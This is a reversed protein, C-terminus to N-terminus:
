PRSIEAVINLLAEGRRLRDINEAVLRGRRARTGYTAGSHHPTMIVNDLEWFPYSAPRPLDNKGTPYQYWTDLAAGAIRRDRLAEFVAKEDVIPGRAPNIVYAGSKMCALERSGILGRTETRLPTGILVFDSASLVDSLGEMGVVSDIDPPLPKGHGPPTRTAAICRMGLAKAIHATRRGIRGLGVIGLTRGKLERYVGHRGPWMEWSGARFTHESKFLEHDLAVMAMIVWEAIPEEHEYANAVVCGNPVADPRINEYGAAPVLIARLTDSVAGMERTFVTTIVAHAGPLLALSEASDVPADALRWEVPVTVPWLEELKSDGGPRPAVVVVKSLSNM